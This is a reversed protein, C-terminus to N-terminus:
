DTKIIKQNIIIKNLDDRIQLIYTGNIINSLDISNETTGFALVTKGAIDILQIQKPGGFIFNIKDTTPNPFAVIKNKSDIIENLGVNNTRLLKASKNTSNIKLRVFYIGYPLTYTQYNIAYSGSPLVTNSFFTHKLNAVIDYVELTITDTQSIAFHITTSSDCPNPNIYLTDPPTAKVFTLMGLVILQTLIYKKMANLKEDLMAGLTKCISTPPNEFSGTDIGV